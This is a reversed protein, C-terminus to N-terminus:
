LFTNGIIRHKNQFQPRILIITHTLFVVCGMRKGFVFSKPSRPSKSDRVMVAAHKERYFKDTVGCQKSPFVGQRLFSTNPGLFLTLKMVYVEILLYCRCYIITCWM